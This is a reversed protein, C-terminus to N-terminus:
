LLTTQYVLRLLDRLRVHDKVGPQSEVGSNIDVAFPQVRTIADVVNAPSLGGALIIPRQLQLQGIISWDFVKGTGGHAGTALTDLLFADVCDNYPSFDDARSEEGVRFAKIIGLTPSQRRIKRCYDASESGHLQVYSFGLGATSHVEDLSANVFVAVRDIFPPLQALIRAAAASDIHRPSKDYFIFGLADVGYSVAALADKLRTTGCM